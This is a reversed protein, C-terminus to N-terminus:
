KAPPKLPGDVWRRAIASKLPDPDECNDCGLRVREGPEETDAVPKMAEGCVPCPRRSSEFSGLM